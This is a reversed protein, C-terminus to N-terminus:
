FNRIISQKPNVIQRLTHLKKCLIHALKRNLLTRHGHAVRL